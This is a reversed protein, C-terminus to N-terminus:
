ELAALRRWLCWGFFTWRCCPSLLISFRVAQVFLLVYDQLPVKPV